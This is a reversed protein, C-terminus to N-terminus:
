VPQLCLAHLAVRSHQAKRRAVGYGIVRGLEHLRVIRHACACVCASPYTCLCVFMYVHPYVCIPRACQANHTDINQICFIHMHITCLQSHPYYMYRYKCACALHGTHAHIYSARQARRIHAYAHTHLTHTYMYHMCTYVSMYKYVCMYVFRMNVHQHTYIHVYIHICM